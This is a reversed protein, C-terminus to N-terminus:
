RKLSFYLGRSTHVCMCVCVCVCVCACVSVYVCVSVHVCLCVCECRVHPRKIILLDAQPRTPKIFPVYFICGYNILTEISLVSPFLFMQKISIGIIDKIPSTYPNQTPSKIAKIKENKDIKEM